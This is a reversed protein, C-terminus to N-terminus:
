SREGEKNKDKHEFEQLCKYAVGGGGLHWRGNIGYHNFFIIKYPM